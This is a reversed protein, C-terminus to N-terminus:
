STRRAVIWIEPSVSPFYHDPTLRSGFLRVVEMGVGGLMRCLEHPAYVRVDSREEHQRGDEFIVTRHVRVRSTFPDFSGEDLVLCRPGQWWSRCPLRAVMHDRSRVQLLLLGGVSLRLRMQDLALQNDAEDFYGFTQGLCLVADYSEDDPLRRMDGHLFSAVNGADENRNSAELLVALSSDVGTVAYGRKALGIAYHGVGTGVDLIRAGPSLGLQQEVFEVERAVLDDDRSAELRAHGETFVEEHWPRRRGREPPPPPAPNAEAVVAAVVPPALAVEPARPDDDHGAAHAHTDDEDELEAEEIEAEEADLEEVDADPEESATQGAEEGWSRAHDSATADQQSALGERAAGSDYEFAADSAPAPPPEHEDRVEIFGSARSVARQARPTRRPGPSAPSPSGAQEAVVGQEAERLAAAGQEAESVADAVLSSETSGSSETPGSSEGYPSEDVDRSTAMDYAAVEGSAPVEAPASAVLTPIAFAPAHQSPEGEVAPESEHSPALLSPLVLRAEDSATAPLTVGAATTVEIELREPADHSTDASGTTSILSPLVVDVDLRESAPPEEYGPDDAEAAGAPEGGEATDTASSMSSPEAASSADHTSYDSADEPAERQSVSGADQDGLIEDTLRIPGSDADRQARSHWSPAAPIGAVAAASGQGLIASRRYRGSGEAGLQVRAHVEADLDDFTGDHPPRVEESTTAAEEWVSKDVRFSMTTVTPGSGVRM